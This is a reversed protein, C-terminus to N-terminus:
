AFSEIMHQKQKKTQNTAIATEELTNQNANVFEVHIIVMEM